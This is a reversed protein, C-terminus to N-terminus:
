RIVFASLNTVAPPLKEERQPSVFSAPKNNGLKTSRPIALNPRGQTAARLDASDNAPRPAWMPEGRASASKEFSRVAAETVLNELRERPRRPLVEGADDGRRAQVRPRGEPRLAGRAQSKSAMPKFNLKECVLSQLESGFM